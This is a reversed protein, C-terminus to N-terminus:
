PFAPNFFLSTILVSIGIGIPIFGYGAQVRAAAPDNRSLVSYGVAQAAIGAITLTLGNIILANKVQTLLRQSATFDYKPEPVAAPRPRAPSEAPATEGSVLATDPMPVPPTGRFNYQSWYGAMGADLPRREILALSANLEISVSEGGNVPIVPWDPPIAAPPIEGGANGTLAAESFGRFGHIQLGPKLFGEEGNRSDGRSVVYDFCCEGERVASIGNGARVYV